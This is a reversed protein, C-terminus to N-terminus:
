EYKNSLCTLIGWAILYCGAYIAALAAMSTSRESNAAIQSFPDCAQAGTMCWCEYYCLEKRHAEDQEQVPLAWFEDVGVKYYDFQNHMLSEYGYKFISLYEFEKLFIPINDSSVFFGAFLMFPIILVPTLTVALQKDSFSASIILSYGSSANYALVLIVLFVM